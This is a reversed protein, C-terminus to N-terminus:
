GHWAGLRHTVYGPALLSTREKESKEKMVRFRAQIEKRRKKAQYEPTDEDRFVRHGNLFVMEGKELRWIILDLRRNGIRAGRIFDNKKVFRMGNWYLPTM